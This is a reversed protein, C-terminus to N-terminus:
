GAGDTRGEVQARLKCVALGLCKGVSGRSHCGMEDAIRRWTWGDVIRRELVALQKETLCSLNFHPFRAALEPPVDTLRRSATM